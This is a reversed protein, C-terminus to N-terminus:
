LGSELGYHRNFGYWVNFRYFEPLRGRHDPPCPCPPPAAWPRTGIDYTKGYGDRWFHHRPPPPPPPPPVPPAAYDDEYYRPEMHHKRYHHAAPKHAAKTIHPPPCHDPAALAPGAGLSASLGAAAIWLLKM